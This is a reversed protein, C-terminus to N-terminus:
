TEAEIEEHRLSAKVLNACNKQFFELPLLQTKDYVEAGLAEAIERVSRGARSEAIIREHYAETARIADRFYAAVADTGCIVANHALCLVRADLEALRKMSDLYTGYDVFYDPWWYDHEPLYYGTADSVLLTGSTPEYFSLSCDSHGPTALVQFAVGDDVEVSDGGELTRDVAIRNEALPARRHEDTITGARVLAESLQDDIKCFFAIAKEIGLTKAAAESALVETGAFTERLMPVAMVHDPHAHTVVIQRVFPGAIGLTDLQECVLPGMPGIGGEFLTGRDRGKYLFLPYEVSGLMWLHDAIEAPPKNVLM